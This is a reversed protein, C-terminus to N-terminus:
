NNLKNRNIPQLYEPILKSSDFKLPKWPISISRSGNEDIPNFFIPVILHDGLYVSTYKDNPVIFTIGNLDEENLKISGLIPEDITPNIRIRMNGNNDSKEDWKLSSSVLNYWLLRYTTAVLIRGEHFEKALRILAETDEHEFPYFNNLHTYLVLYGRESVLKALVNESLQRHLDKSTPPPRWIDINNNFRRFSYVKSGDDLFMPAFLRNSNWITEKGIFAGIISRFTILPHRWDLICYEKISINRDQGVMNTLQTIWYFKVGVIKTIDAHYAVSNPNAGKHTEIGHNVNQINNENGHNTWIPVNLNYKKIEEASREAFSRSFGGQLSFDGYTHLTDIYGNNIYNRIIPAFNSPKTTLGDFYSFKIKLNESFFLFSNAIELGLGKGIRTNETSNLFHQLVFFDELNEVGHFDTSISLGARYPYPFKRIKAKCHLLEDYNVFFITIGLVVILLFIIISLRKVKLMKM